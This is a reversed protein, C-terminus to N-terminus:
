CATASEGVTGGSVHRRVYEAPAYGQEASRRLWPMATEVEYDTPKPSLMSLGLKYAAVAEGAEARQRVAEMDTPKQECFAGTKPDIQQSLSSITTLLCCAAILFTPVSRM